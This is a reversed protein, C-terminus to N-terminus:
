QASNRRAIDIMTQLEEFSMRGHLINSLGLKAIKKLMFGSPKFPDRPDLLNEERLLDIAMQAGSADVEEGDLIRQLQAPKLKLYRRACYLAGVHYAELEDRLAAMDIARQSRVTLVPDATYRVVHALEHGMIDSHQFREGPYMQLWMAPRKRLLTIGEPPQKFYRLLHAQDLIEAAFASMARTIGHMSVPGAIDAGSQHILYDALEGGSGFRPMWADFIKATRQSQTGTQRNFDESLYVVEGPHLAAIPLDDSEKKSEPIYAVGNIINAVFASDLLRRHSVARAGLDQALAPDNLAEQANIISRDIFANRERIDAPTYYM